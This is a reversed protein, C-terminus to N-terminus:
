GEAVELAQEVVRREGNNGNIGEVRLHDVLHLALSTHGSVRVRVRVGALRQYTDYSILGGAATMLSICINKDGTVSWWQVM